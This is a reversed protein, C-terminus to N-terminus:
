NYKPRTENVKANQYQENLAILKQEIEKIKQELEMRKAPNKETGVRIRLLHLSGSLTGITILLSKSNGGIINVGGGSGDRVSNVCKEAKAKIIDFVNGSKNIPQDVQRTQGAVNTVTYGSNNISKNKTTIIPQEKIPASQKIISCDCNVPRKSKPLYMRNFNKKLSKVGSNILKQNNERQIEVHKSLKEIKDFVEKETLQLIGSGTKLKENNRYEERLANFDADKKFMSGQLRIPKDFGEPVFSIYSYKDNEQEKDLFKVEGYQRLEKILEVRSNIKKDLVLKTLCVQIEDKKPKVVEKLYDVVKSGNKIEKLELSHHSISLPNRIVRDFGMNHNLLDVYRDRMDINLQGPPFPNFARGTNLEMKLFACNLEVNGKDTHITWHDLFNKDAKMGPFWTARFGKIVEKLIPIMKETDYSGDKNAFQQLENNAFSITLSTHTLDIGGEKAIKESDKIRDENGCICVPKFKREVGAHDKDAMFYNIASMISKGTNNFKLVAM